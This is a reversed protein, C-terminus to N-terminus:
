FALQLTLSFIKTLYSNYTVQNEPPYDAVIKSMTESLKKLTEQCTVGEIISVDEVSINEQSVNELFMDLLYTLIWYDISTETEFAQDAESFKETYGDATEKIIPALFLLKGMPMDPINQMKEALLRKVEKYISELEKEGSKYFESNKIAEMVSLAANVVDAENGIGSQYKINEKKFARINDM